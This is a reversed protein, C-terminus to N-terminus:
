EVHEQNGEDKIALQSFESFTEDYEGFARLTLINMFDEFFPSPLAGVTDPNNKRYWNCLNLYTQDRSQPDYQFELGFDSTPIYTTYKEEEDLDGYLFQNVAEM